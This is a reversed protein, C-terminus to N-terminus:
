TGLIESCWEHVDQIAKQKNSLHAELHKPNLVNMLCLIDKATRRKEDRSVRSYFNLDQLSRIYDESHSEGHLVLRYMLNEFYQSYKENKMSALIDPDCSIADIGKKYEFTSFSELVRRMTNGIAMNDDDLENKAYDYIIEIMTSYEHRKQYSFKSLEFNNLEWVSFNTTIKKKSEKKKTTVAKQIERYQKSLDYITPLDHSFIVVRSFQNGLAIKLLQSKLYSLIGIKNDLDFSSIPDDIILMVEKQYFEEENLNNLLLTFYYCLALINREGCSIDCPKVPKGKSFLIYRDEDTEIFLRTDSFFVYKLGNNIFDVAIKISKQQEQISSLRRKLAEEENTITKLVEEDLLMREKQKLYITYEEIVEYYALETNIKLLKNKLYDLDDFKKNYKIRMSELNVLKQTIENIEDLLSFQNNIPIYTNEIKKQLLLNYDEITQNAKRISQQCERVSEQDIVSFNSLDISILPLKVRSLELIHEDVDESLVKEISDVLEKKYSETIPQLCSPCYEIKNNLFLNKIEQFHEQKGHLVLDLISKERDSLIPKEIKKNLLNHIIEIDVNFNLKPVSATIKSGEQSIFKYERIKTNFEEELETKSRQPTTKVISLITDENVSSNKRYGRIRSDKGAWNGDGQLSKRIRNQYYMPSTISSANEYESCKKRQTTYLENKEIIQHNISEIEKELEAQEGFMVITELGDEKVKVNKEVFDENFVFINDSMSGNNNIMSDNFDYLEANEINATLEGRYNQFGKSISSKGSGNRGYVLCFRDLYINEGTRAFLDFNKRQDFMTGSISIGKLNEFM